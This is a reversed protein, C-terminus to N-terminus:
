AAKGTRGGGAAYAQGDRGAKGANRRRYNRATPCIGHEFDVEWRDAKRVGKERLTDHQPHLEALLRDALWLERRRSNCHVCACGRTPPNTVKDAM